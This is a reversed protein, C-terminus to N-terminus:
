KKDKKKELPRRVRESGDKNLLVVMGDRIIMKRSNWGHHKKFQGSSMQGSRRFDMSPLDSRERMQFRVGRLIGFRWGRGYGL